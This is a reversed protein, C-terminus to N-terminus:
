GGVYARAINEGKYVWKYAYEKVHRCTRVNQLKWEFKRLKTFSFITKSIREIDTWLFFLSGSCGCPFSWYRLHVMSFERLFFLNLLYSKIGNQQCELSKNYFKAEFTNMKRPFQCQIICINHFLTVVRDSKYM